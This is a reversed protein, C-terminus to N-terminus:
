CVRAHIDSPSEYNSSIMCCCCIHPKDTIYKSRIQRHHSPSHHKTFYDAANDSGKRWYILFQGENVRDQLWYFRMDIAKSRKQKITSNAIGVACANDTQIPTPPQPHGMDALTNRLSCAEKANYFLAGTEAETASSMVAKIISSHVHIAGNFEPPPDDPKPALPGTKSSLYFYGGARSRAGSVSLYSADSTVHLIMNSKRYEIQADPHSAAYNLLQIAADMTDITGKSQAAALTGLAVLMTCDVMRAYYLLVGIIEQLKKIDNPLLSISDKIVPDYQAGSGYTPPIWSHPSHQPKEPTSIGFRNLARQVYGPMSKTVTNKTYDWDLTLGLYKQGTWDEEIEYFTKLLHLLHDISSKQIYKVLFDDVWLTFKIGNTAHLFLGPTHSAEFYGGKELRTVLLQKALIGSQPLGYIGKRIEAMVFGNDVLDHLQYHNIIDSPLTSIPIRVYEFEPLPTNLYFNKIDLTMARADDTSIIDNMLMNVTTIDVTPTSVDDNYEIKDGGVTARVRFPEPKNPKHACVIRIYTAQKEAPKESSRIFRITDTGEVKGPLGQALRGFELSTARSWEAKDDGLLLKKHSLTQVMNASHETPFLDPLIPLSTVQNVLRTHTNPDFRVTPLNRRPRHTTMGPIHGRFREQKEEEKEVSPIAQAIRKRLKPVKTTRVTRTLRRTNSTHVTVSDAEDDDDSDDETSLLHFRNPNQPPSSLPQSPLTPQPPPSSDETSRKRATVKSQRRRQRANFNYGAYTFPSTSPDVRPQASTILPHSPNPVRPQITTDNITSEVRPQPPMVLTPPENEPVRPQQPIDLTPPVVADIMRPPGEHAFAPSPPTTASPDVHSQFLSALELLAAHHNDSLPSLASAPSPHRLAHILDTTLAIIRDTSSATPMQVQTPFWALTDSIVESNTSPNFVTWCRYHEMTPGLYWGPTGHPAWPERNKPKTHIIVRSGPPGIPHKSFDYAGFLQAHASLSPNIHSPRLLNLTLLAQPLLRDWLHLPFNPDLSCLGAVFHNKFTRIAREAANRRHVDPPTLQYEIGQSIM